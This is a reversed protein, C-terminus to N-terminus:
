QSRHSLYHGLRRDSADAGGRTLYHRVLDMDQFNVEVHVPIDAKLVREMDIDKNRGFQRPNRGVLPM